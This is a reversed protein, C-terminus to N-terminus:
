PWVWRYFRVSYNPATADTFALNGLSDATINGLTIWNNTTLDDTAQVSYTLGPLGTAALQLTGTRIRKVTTFLAAANTNDIRTLAVDNGDGGHYSIRFLQSGVALIANEALGNFTGNV